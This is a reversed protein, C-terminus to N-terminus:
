SKQIILFSLFKLNEGKSPAELIDVVSFRGKGWKLMLYPMISLSAGFPDLDNVGSAEHLDSHELICIGNEKLCSIWANICKEPDYSHDFSNSYIFDARGIWEPKVEHFDWEITHPFKSASDSIETGIVECNLHKRFWEQEKGRRTGHCLGFEPQAIKGKIYKALFEINEEKVWINELKKKNGETQIARYKSYDFTGDDKQYARTNLLYDEGRHTARKTNSVLQYGFRSLIKNAIKRKM